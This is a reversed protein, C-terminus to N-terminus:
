SDLYDIIPKLTIPMDCISRGRMRIISKLESIDCGDYLRDCFDILADIDIPSENPPVLYVFKENDNEDFADVYSSSIIPLGKAAYERTKLTSENKLNQRHIALSNVGVTAYDYVEDLAKGHLRGHFIIRDDLHAYRTLDKYEQIITKDGSGVIDFIIDRKGGNEYYIRLGEILRDYGHVRYISAVGCLHIIELDSDNNAIRVKDFDLGNITRITKIGFIQDDDSYTVIRNIYKKLKNRYYKDVYHTVLGKLNEKGENDYPYTPIEVVVRIGRNKMKQLLSLFLPDSNPYRVYCYDFSDHEIMSKAVQLLQIKSSGKKIVNKNKDINQFSIINEKDRCLLLVDFHDSFVKVHGLVKKAVGDLRDLEIKVPAIYLLKM